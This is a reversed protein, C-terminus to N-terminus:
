LSNLSYFSIDLRMCPQHSPSTRSLQSPFPELVSELTGSACSVLTPEYLLSPCSQHSIYPIFLYTLDRVHCVARSTRSAQPQFPELMSELTEPACSALLSDYFLSPRSRHLETNDFLRGMERRARTLALSRGVGDRSKRRHIFHIHPFM